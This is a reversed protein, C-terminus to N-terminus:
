TSWFKIAHQAQQELLNFGDVYELCKAPLSMEHPTFHYNYDWFIIEKTLSSSFVYDRSCTNIIIKQSLKRHDFYDLCNLQHFNNTMKRSAIQYPIRLEGLVLESVKSMVGDGLIM